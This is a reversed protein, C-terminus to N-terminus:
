RSMMQRRTIKPGLIYGIELLDLGVVGSVPGVTWLRFEAVEVRSDGAILRWWSTSYVKVTKLVLIERKDYSL